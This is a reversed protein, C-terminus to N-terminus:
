FIRAKICAAYTNSGGGTNDNGAAVFVYLKWDAPVADGTTIHQQHTQTGACDSMPYSAFWELYYYLAEPEVVSVDGANTDARIYTSAVFKSRMGRCDEACGTDGGTQWTFSADGTGGASYAELDSGNGFQHAVWRCVPTTLSPYTGDGRGDTGPLIPVSGAEAWCFGYIIIPESNNDSTIMDAENSGSSDFTMCLSPRDRAYFGTDWFYYKAATMSTSMATSDSAAITFKIYTDGAASASHVMTVVADDGGSGSIYTANGINLVDGDHQSKLYNVNGIRFIQDRNKNDIM